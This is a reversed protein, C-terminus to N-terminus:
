KMHPPKEVANKDYCELRRKEQYEADKPRIQLFGCDPGFDDDFKVSLSHADIFAAQLREPYKMIMRNFIRIANDDIIKQIRADYERVWKEVESSKESEILERAKLMCQIEESIWTHEFGKMLAKAEEKSMDQNIFVNIGNSAVLTITFHVIPMGFINIGKVKNPTIKLLEPCGKEYWERVFEPTLNLAIREKFAYCCDISRADILTDQDRIGNQHLFEMIYDLSVILNFEDRDDGDNNWFKRGFGKMTNLTGNSKMKVFVTNGTWYYLLRVPEEALKKDVFNRCSEAAIQIASMLNKKDTDRCGSAEVEAMMGNFHDDTKQKLEAAEEQTSLHATIQMEM